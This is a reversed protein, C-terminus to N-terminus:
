DDEEWLSCPGSSLLSGGLEKPVIELGMTIPVLLRVALGFTREWLEEFLLRNKEGAGSLWIEQEKMLWLVELLDTNLLTRRLLEQRLSEKIERKKVSNPKRGVQNLFEIEKYHYDRNLIKSSLKRSDLRVTFALFGGFKFSAPNFETALHDFIEVWGLSDEEASNEIDVFKHRKLKEQIFEDTLSEPATLLRYRSVTPNGKILGM